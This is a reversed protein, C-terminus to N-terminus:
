FEALRPVRLKNALHRSGRDFAQDVIVREISSSSSGAPRLGSSRREIPKCRWPLCRLTWVSATKGSATPLALAAPWEQRCNQAALRRQWPFPEDGNVERFFAAFDDATLPTM